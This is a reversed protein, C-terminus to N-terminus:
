VRIRVRELRVHGNHPRSDPGEYADESRSTGNRESYHREQGDFENQANASACTEGHDEREQNSRNKPIKQRPLKTKRILLAVARLVFFRHHAFVTFEQRRKLAQGLRRRFHRHGTGHATEDLRSVSISGIM